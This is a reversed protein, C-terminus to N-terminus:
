KVGELVIYEGQETILGVGEESLSLNWLTVDEDLWPFKYLGSEYYYRDLTGTAVYVEDGLRNVGESGDVELRYRGLKDVKSLNIYLRLRLFDDLRVSFIEYAQVSFRNPQISRADCDEVKISRQYQENFKQLAFQIIFQKENLM